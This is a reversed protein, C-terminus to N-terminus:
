KAVIGSANSCTGELLLFVALIARELSMVQTRSVCNTRIYLVSPFYVSKTIAQTVLM